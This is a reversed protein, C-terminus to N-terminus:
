DFVTFGSLFGGDVLLSTGNVYDSQDSALFVAVKAIDEPMGVRGQPIKPLVKALTEPQEMISRNLETKIIGPCICNVRIGYKAVEFALSKTFNLVGAKSVAYALRNYGTLSAISGINIISGKQQQIMPTLAYKSMLFIGTLNVKMVNDWDMLTHEIATKRVIIGANNVLVDIKGHEKLVSEILDKVSQENSVDCVKFQAKPIEDIVGACNKNVEAIIVVAGAAAMQKAM